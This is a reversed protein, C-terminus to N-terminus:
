PIAFTAARRKEVASRTLDGDVPAPAHNELEDDRRFGPDMKGAQLIGERFFPNGQVPDTSAPFSPLSVACQVM